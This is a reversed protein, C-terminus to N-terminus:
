NGSLQITRVANWQILHNHTSYGDGTLYPLNSYAENGVSVSQTLTGLSGGSLTITDNSNDPFVADMAAETEFVQEYIWEVVSGEM